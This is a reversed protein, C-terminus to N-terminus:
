KIKPIKTIKDSPRFDDPDQDIFKFQDIKLEFGFRNFLDILDQLSENKFGFHTKPDQKSGKGNYHVISVKNKDFISFESAMFDGFTVDVLIKLGGKERVFHLDIELNDAEGWVKQEYVIRIIDIERTFNSKKFSFEGRDTVVTLSKPFYKEIGKDLITTSEFAKFGILYNM